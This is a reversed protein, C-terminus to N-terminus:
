HTVVIKQTGLQGKESMLIIQYTGSPLDAVDFNVQQKGAQLDGFQRTRVTQGTTSIILAGVKSFSPVDIELNMSASAPNPFAKAIHNVEIDKTGVLQRTLIAGVYTTDAGFAISKVILRDHSLVPASHQTTWWETQTNDITLPIGFFSLSATLLRTVRLSPFTGLSTQITGSADGTSVVRFTVPGLDPDDFNFTDRFTSNITFPYKFVTQPDPNVNTAGTSDVDGLIVWESANIRNYEGTKTTPTGERKFLTATPFKALGLTGATSGYFVTTAPAPDLALTSFNWTQNAGTAGLNMRKAATTDVDRTRVGTRTNPASASTLTIQATGVQLLVIFLFLGIAHKKM